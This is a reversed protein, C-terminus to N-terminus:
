VYNGIKYKNWVKKNEGMAFKKTLSHSEIFYEAFRNFGDVLHSQKKFVAENQLSATIKDNEVNKVFM